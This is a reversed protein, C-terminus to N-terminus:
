LWGHNKMEYLYKNHTHAERIWEDLEKESERANPFTDLLFAYSSSSLTFCFLLFVDIPTKLNWANLLLLVWRHSVMTYTQWLFCIPNENYHTNTNKGLGNFITILIIFNDERVKEQLEVICNNNDSTYEIIKV